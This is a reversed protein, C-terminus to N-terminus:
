PRHEKLLSKVFAASDDPSSAHARLRDYTDAAQGVMKAAEYVRGGQPGDVYLATPSDEMGLLTFPRMQGDPAGASFPMVQMDVHPLEAAHLLYELQGAMVAPGGVRTRLASEHTILWIAPPEERDLVARRRLRAAVKGEVVDDTARPHAARFIARAYDETQFLGMVLGTSYDLIRTAKQELQVYPVFWSPHDSEEMRRRLRQFMGHTGFVVDCGRAFRESPVLQGKEVRSVYAESYGAGRALHKQTLKRGKRVERVEFGFGQLPTLNGSPGDAEM